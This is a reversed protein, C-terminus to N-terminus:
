QMSYDAISPDSSPFRDFAKLADNYYERGKGPNGMQFALSAQQRLATILDLPNKAASHALQGMAQARQYQGAVQFSIALTYYESTTVLHPIEDAVNSAEEALIVNEQNFVSSLHGLALAENKYKENLELEKM